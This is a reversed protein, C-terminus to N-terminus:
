HYKFRTKTGMLNAERVIGKRDIIRITNGTKEILHNNSFEHLLRVLTEKATGVMSALDTRSLRIESAVGSKGTTKFKEDLLLLNYALRERVSKTALNTIATTFLTFEHGLAKLLRGSLVASGQLVSLFSEKPIFAIEAEEITAASDTYREDGLLAHYGLLEHEGCIYFIQEGGKTTTKFKKARGSVVYFIGAPIGGERFIVEGKRYRHTVGSMTLTDREQRSLGEFIDNSRLRFNETNLKSLMFQLDVAAIYRYLIL